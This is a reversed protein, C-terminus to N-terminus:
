LVELAVLLTRATWLLGLGVPVAVTIAAQRLTLDRAHKLAFTWLFASWLTFVISLVASLAVLPGTQLSQSFQQYAEMTMETPVDIGRVNFRYYNVAAGAISGLVSPVYGWGVLALTTSFEGEGDLLASIGHFLGAYLLWFVFPLAFSFVLSVARIATVFGGGAGGSEFVQSMFQFQLLSAVVSVVAIAAVVVAPGKLSPDPVRRRFFEDPDTLLSLVSPM